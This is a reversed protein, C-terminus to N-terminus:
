QPNFHLEISEKSESSAPAFKWQSIADQAAQILIPSGGVPQVAKVKGDAAVLAVVKVTGALNVKRAMEPYQPMVKHVIKRDPENGADQSPAAGSQGLTAMTSLCFLPVLFRRMRPM